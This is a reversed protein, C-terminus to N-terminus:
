QGNQAVIAPNYHDDPFEPEREETADILNQLSKACYSLGMTEIRACDVFGRARATKWLKLAATVGLEPEHFTIRAM